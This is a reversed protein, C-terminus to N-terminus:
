DSIVTAFCTTPYRGRGGEATFKNERLTPGFTVPTWQLLFPM